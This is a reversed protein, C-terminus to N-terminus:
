NDRIGLEEEIEKPVLSEETLRLNKYYRNKLM